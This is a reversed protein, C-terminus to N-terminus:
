IHILSLMYRARQELGRIEGPSHVVPRGMLRTIEVALEAANDRMIDVAKHCLVARQQVSTQKWAARATDAANIASLIEAEGALKRQAVISGDVPSVIQINNSM